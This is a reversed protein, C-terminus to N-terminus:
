KKQGLRDAVYNFVAPDIAPFIDIYHGCNEGDEKKPGNQLDKLEYYPNERLIKKVKDVLEEAGKCHDELYGSCHTEFIIIGDRFDYSGVIIKGHYEAPHM